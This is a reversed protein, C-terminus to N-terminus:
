RFDYSEHERLQRGGAGEGAGEEEDSDQDKPGEAEQAKEAVHLAGVGKTIDPIPSKLSSTDLSSARNMAFSEWANDETEGFGLLDHNDANATGQGGGRAPQEDFFSM